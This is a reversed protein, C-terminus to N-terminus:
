ISPLKLAAISRSGNRAQAFFRFKSRNRLFQRIGAASTTQLRVSGLAIAGDAGESGVANPLALPSDPACYRDATDRLSQDLAEEPWVPSKAINM